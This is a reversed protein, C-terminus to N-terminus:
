ARDKETRSFVWENGDSMASNYRYGEVDFVKIGEVDKIRNKVIYKVMLGRARKAYIGVVKYTGAKEDKFVPTIVTAALQKKKVSKFYETSALNLLIAQENKQQSFAENLADTIRSGWFEYLNKGADNALKTGMELRYPQILDLPNLLGYLGSLIKLHKQAFNFDTKKYGYADMGAYVDGKFALIAQRANDETFPLLWEGYRAVNLGALKDSLGMLSAVQQPSYNKLIDILEQAQDLMEPMSYDEIPLASDYDLKKAPSVVILM